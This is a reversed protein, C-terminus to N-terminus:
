VILMIKKVILKITLYKLNYINQILDLPNKAM